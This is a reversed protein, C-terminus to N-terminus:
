QALLKINDIFLNGSKKDSNLITFYLRIYPYHNYYRSSWLKGLNVYIKNWKRGPTTSYITEAYYTVDPGESYAPNKLGIRFDFDSWYDIELYLVTSADGVYYLTDSWFDLSKTEPTVRVVGCGYGNCVTDSQYVLRQVVTDLSVESPGPEFFEQWLVRMNNKSIFMTQLTGLDTVSDATMHINELRIPQYFSYFIRTSAIGNQKVVPQIRMYSINGERLMPVKCPLQFTGLVTEATDGDCYFVINVADINSSFFGSEQSWSDEPDDVLDIADIKLYSPVTQDGEYGDCSTSLIASILIYSLIKIKRKMNILVYDAM